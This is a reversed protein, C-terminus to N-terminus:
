APVLEQQPAPFREALRALRDSRRQALEALFKLRERTDANRCNVQRSRLRDAARRWARSATGFERRVPRLDYPTFLDVPVSFEDQRDDLTVLVVWRPRHDSVRLWGPRYVVALSQRRVDQNVFSAVDAVRVVDGVRLRGSRSNSSGPTM